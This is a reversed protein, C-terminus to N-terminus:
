TNSVQAMFTDERLKEVICKEEIVKLDQKYLGYLCDGSNARSQSKLDCIKMGFREKCIDLGNVELHSSSLDNVAFLAQTKPGVKYLNNNAIVIPPTM